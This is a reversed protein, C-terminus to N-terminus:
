FASTGFFWIVIRDAWYGHVDLIQVVEGETEAQLLRLCFNRIEGPSLISM